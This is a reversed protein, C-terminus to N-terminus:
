FFLFKHPHAGKERLGPFTALIKKRASPTRYGLKALAQGVDTSSYGGSPQPKCLTKVQALLAKMEDPPSPPSPRPAAAPREAPAIPDPSAPLLLTTLTPSRATPVEGDSYAIYTRCGAAKARKGAALLLADRSVIVVRTGTRIHEALNSGLALILAADAADKQLPVTISQIPLGPIQEILASTWGAGVRGQANGAVTACCIVAGLGDQLLDVLPAANRSSQNDADIYLACRIPRPSASGSEPCAAAMEVPASARPPTSDDM